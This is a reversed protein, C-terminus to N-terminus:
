SLVTVWLKRDRFVATAGGSSSYRLGFTHKGPPLSFVLQGGRVAQSVGFSNDPGAAGPATRRVGFSTSTQDIIRPSGALSGPGVLHVQARQAGNSIRAEVEAHVAVLGGRPVFVTVFPGGALTQPPGSTTTVESGAFGFRGLNTKSPTVAFKHLKKTKVAGRRIDDATVSGKGRLAVAASGGGIAVVLALIALTLSPSPILSKM